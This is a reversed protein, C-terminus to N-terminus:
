PHRVINGFALLHFFGQSDRFCIETGNKFICGDANKLGSRLSTEQADVRDHRADESVICRFFHDCANSINLFLIINIWGVAAFKLAQHDFLPFRAFKGTPIVSFIAFTDPDLFASARYLVRM